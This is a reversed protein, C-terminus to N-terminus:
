TLCLSSLRPGPHEPLCALLGARGGDEREKVSHNVCVCVCVHVCVCVCVTALTKREQIVKTTLLQLEALSLFFVCAM